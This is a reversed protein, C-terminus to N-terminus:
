KIFEGRGSAIRFRDADFADNDREFIRMTEILTIDLTDSKIDPHGSYSLRYLERFMAAFKVYDKRTM